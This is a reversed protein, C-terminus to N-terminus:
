GHGGMKQYIEWTLERSADHARTYERGVEKDMFTHMTNHWMRQEENFQFDM